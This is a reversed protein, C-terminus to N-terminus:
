IGLLVLYSVREIINSSNIIRRNEKGDVVLVSVSVSVEAGPSSITEQKHTSSQQTATTERMPLAPLFLLIEEQKSSEGPGDRSVSPVGFPITFHFTSGQGEASDM